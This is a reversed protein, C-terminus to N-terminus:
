IFNHEEKHFADYWCFRLHWQKCLEYHWLNLLDKCDSVAYVTWPGMAAHLGRGLACLRHM